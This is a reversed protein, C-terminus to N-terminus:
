TKHDAVTSLQITTRGQAESVKRSLWHSLDCRRWGVCRASFKIKRPFSGDTESLVYLTTRSVGLYKAALAPRLFEAYHDQNSPKM